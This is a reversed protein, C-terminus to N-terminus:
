EDYMFYEAMTVGSYPAIYQMPAPDSANALVVTTYEMAGFQELKEVVAAVTSAKQGIAIYFCIVNKGKQNIITDVAIATKGTKRDGIILERQGRDIPIMSDIAKIGTQLPVKVPHRDAIGPALFEVPRMKDTNIPGKNDVPIGLPTVVRGLLEDGVPTALVRNLRKVSDGEQIELYDGLIAAGISDEELNLVMAQVGNGFELMEGSMANQLGHIRAIGDGVQIVTGVESIDLQSKFGEIEKKIISKIEDTKIKM